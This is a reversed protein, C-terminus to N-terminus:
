IKHSTARTTSTAAGEESVMRAGWWGSTGTRLITGLSARNKPNKSVLNGVQTRWNHAQM